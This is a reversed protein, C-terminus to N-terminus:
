YSITWHNVLAVATAAKQHVLAAVIHFLIPMNNLDKYVDLVDELEAGYIM